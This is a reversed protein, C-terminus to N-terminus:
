HFPAECQNDSLLGQQSWIQCQLKDKLLGNTSILKTFTEQPRFINFFYNLIMILSFIKSSSKRYDTVERWWFECKCSSCRMSDRWKEHKQFASKGVNPCSKVPCGSKVIMSVLKDVEKKFADKLDNNEPESTESGTSKADSTTAVDSSRRRKHGKSGASGSSSEDKDSLDSVSPTARPKKSKKGDRIDNIQRKIKEIEALLLLTILDQKQSLPEDITRADSVNKEKQNKSNETPSKESKGAEPKEDVKRIQRSHENTGNEPPKTNISIKGHEM